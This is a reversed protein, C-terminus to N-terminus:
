SLICAFVTIDDQQFKKSKEMAKVAINRALNEPNNRLYGEIEKEIWDTGSVTAGDSMMVIIDGPSLNVDEKSFDIERLIGIPLSAGDICTCKGKQRIITTAAGAKFLQAKGTFLDIKAYDLTSLSEYSSKVLMSTNVTKLASEESLGGRTLKKFFEATMASDVAARAGTGMGDSVLVHLFGDECFSECFDGCVSKSGSPYQVYASESSIWPKQVFKINIGNELYLVSPIEFKRLTINEIEKKLKDKELERDMGKCVATIIMVGKPDITCVVSKVKVGYNKLLGKIKSSTQSDVANEKLCDSALKKLTESMCSLQDYFINRMLSIQTEEQQVICNQRYYKEFSKLFEDINSCSSLFSKPLNEKQIRENKSFLETTYEFYKYTQQFNKEWCTDYRKCSKCVDSQVKCYISKLSSNSVKKLQLSVKEVSQCVDTVCQASQLIKQSIEKRPNPINFDSSPLAIFNKLNFLNESPLALFLVVSAICEITLEFLGEKQLTFFFLVYRCVLFSIACGAKSLSSFVGSLLGSLALSIIDFSSGTYIGVSIGGAVGAIGSATEGGLLACLLILFGVLIKSLSIEFFNFSSFAVIFIGLSFILCVAQRPTFKLTEYNESIFETSKEFFYASVAGIFGECLSFLFANVTMDIFINFITSLVFLISFVCVPTIFWISRFSSRKSIFMTEILKIIIGALVYKISELLAQSSACGFILGLFSSFVFEGPVACFFAVGFPSVNSIIKAHSLVFSIILTVINIIIIKPDDRLREYTREFYIKSKKIKEM